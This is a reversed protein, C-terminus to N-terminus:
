AEDAPFNLELTIGSPDRLFLQRLGLAPVERETYSLGRADLRARMQALGTADFAIHDLNGTTGDAPGSRDGLYKVTEGDPDIGILHVVGYDGDDDGLYLWVGPFKFPPRFGERFGLVQTYFERAAELDPTRISYHALRTIAM